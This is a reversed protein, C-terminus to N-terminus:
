DAGLNYLQQLLNYSAHYLSRAKTKLMKVKPNFSIGSFYYVVSFVVVSIVVVIGYGLKWIVQLVMGLHEGALLYITQLSSFPKTLSVVNVRVLYSVDIIVYLLLNDM